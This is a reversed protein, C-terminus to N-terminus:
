RDPSINLIKIADLAIDYFVPEAVTSGWVAGRRAGDVIVYITIKPNKAPLFGVVSAYLRGSHENDSSSTGGHRSTGTKAAVSYNSLKYKGRDVSKVLLEAVDKAVDEEIVRRKVIKSEMEEPSYKIIHPTVWVGKNAIANVASIMQIVTVSAGYGYGMAGRRAEDWKKASPFIGLSEGPLDIGTKSGIGFASLIGHFENRDLKLAIVASAINSSHEFLYVLDIMGPYPNRNYDHNKITWWGIKKKGTDLIKENKSIKKLALGSAVTLVKFTSGPPYVDTLAWNKLYSIPYKNYKNPNYSPAIAMALIDGTQTDMVIAAGRRANTEKIKKNLAQESVYQVASDITLQLTPGKLEAVLDKPDTGINYIVDGKGTKQYTLNEGSELYERATYEVGSSIDANPNYYGLVHSALSDQLYVRKNILDRSVERLRMKALKNATIRDVDKKLLVNNSDSNHILSVIKEQKVNLVPSLITALQKVSRKEENFDKKHAYINYTIKNSVLKLGNRDVIDGRLVEMEKTHQRYAKIRYKKFDVVQILFLYGSLFIFFLISLVKICGINSDMQKIKNKEDM